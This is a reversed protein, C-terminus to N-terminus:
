HIGHKCPEKTHGVFALFNIRVMTHSFTSGASDPSVTSPIPVKGQGSACHLAEEASDVPELRVSVAPGSRAKSDQVLPPHNGTSAVAVDETAADLSAFDAEWYLAAAEALLPLGKQHVASEM